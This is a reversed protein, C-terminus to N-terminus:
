FVVVFEDTCFPSPDIHAVVFFIRLSNRPPDSPLPVCSFTTCKFFVNNRRFAYYRSLECPRAIRATQRMETVWRRDDQSRLVSFRGLLRHFSLFPSFPSSTPFFAIHSSSSSTSSFSSLLLYTLFSLFLSLFTSPSVFSNWNSIPTSALLAADDRVQRLRSLFARFDFM